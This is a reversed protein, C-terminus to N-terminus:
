NWRIPSHVLWWFLFLKAISPNVEVMFWSPAPDFKSIDLAGSSSLPRGDKEWYSYWWHYGLLHIKSFFKFCVSLYMVYLRLFKVKSCTPHIYMYIMYIYWIFVCIYTHWVQWLKYSMCLVNYQLPAIPTTIITYCFVTSSLLVFIICDESFKM